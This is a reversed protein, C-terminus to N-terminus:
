EHSIEVMLPVIGGHTKSTYSFGIAKNDYTVDSKNVLKAGLAARIKKSLGGAQASMKEAIAKADLQETSYLIMLYDTGKNDDMKIIKTESPFAVTSNAGVYPVTLDDFPLIRNVKGTLDTAFAYIYARENLNMFFRFKTGSSYSKDMRYAVMDETNKDKKVHEEEVFLNRTSVRSASMGEGTNTKFEVNGKLAFTTVPAPVPQPAPQPKPQPAPAPAPQPKPTPPAPTPAPPAPVADRIFDPVPSDPDGIAQFGAICYKNFDAYRMWVTGSRAWNTGWSNLILFAGGEKRDDYGIVVMAHGSHQWEGPPESAAPIWTDTKVAQFSPPVPYFGGLVPTNDLLAKKTRDVKYSEDQPDNKLGFVTYAEKIKYKGAELDASAEWKGGCSYPVTRLFPLGKDAMFLLAKTPDAGNCAPKNPAISQYLFTPSYAAKTIAARDTINHTQAFLISALGYGAAWAVCTGYQKQDGPYPAYKELSYAPPLGRYSSSALDIKRPSAALAAPDITMGTGHEAQALLRVPSFLLCIGLTFFVLMKM